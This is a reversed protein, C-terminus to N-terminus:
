SKILSIDAKLQINLHLLQSFPLFFSKVQLSKTVPSPKTLQELENDFLRM